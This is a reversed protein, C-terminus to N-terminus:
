LNDDPELAKKHSVAGHSLLWTGKGTKEKHQCCYLPFVFFGKIRNHTSHSTHAHSHGTHPLLM